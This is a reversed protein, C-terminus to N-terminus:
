YFADTIAAVEPKLGCMDAIEDICEITILTSDMDMVLLKFDTLQIGPVIWTADMHADLCLHEITEKLAPTAHAGECRYAQESLAIVKSVGMLSAIRHVTAPDPLPGQLILNM